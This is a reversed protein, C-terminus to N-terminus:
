LYYLKCYSCIQAQYIVILPVARGAIITGFGVSVVRMIVSHWYVRRLRSVLRWVEVVSHGLVSQFRDNNLLKLVVHFRSWTWSSTWCCLQNCVFVSATDLTPQATWAGPNCQMQPWCDQLCHYRSLRAMDSWIDIFCPRRQQSSTMFVRCIANLQPEYGAHRDFM